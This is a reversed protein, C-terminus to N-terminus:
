SVSGKKNRETLAKQYVESAEESTPFVGLHNLKGNIKIKALYKYNYSSVGIPLGSKKKKFAPNNEGKTVKSLKEQFTLLRYEQTLKNEFDLAERKSKFEAAVFLFVDSRQYFKGHRHNKSPKKKFHQQTRKKINSTMGVYEITGMLNVIEYVYYNKM